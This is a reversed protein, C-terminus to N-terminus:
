AALFFPKFTPNVFLNDYGKMFDRQEAITKGQKKTDIKCYKVLKSIADSYIDFKTKALYVVM